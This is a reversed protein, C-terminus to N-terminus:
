RALPFEASGDQPNVLIVREQGFDGDQYEVRCWNAGTRSVAKPEGCDFRNSSLFLDAAAIAQDDSSVSSPPRQLPTKPDHPSADSCSLCAVLLLSVWSLHIPVQQTRM